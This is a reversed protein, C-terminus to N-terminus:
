SRQRLAATERRVWRRMEVAPAPPAVLWGQAGDCGFERLRDRITTSEVGEAVVVLGLDHALDITSRVIAAQDKTLGLVFSRDIKLEDVPLQRLYSLSSYGTGFDDIALTIGMDHLRALCKASRVPDAMIFNETIELVLAAPDVGRLRICEAVRDPLDPDRLNRPSLNVAVRVGTRADLAAWEALAKDLLMMTLPEILGTQEALDIFESPPLSGLRPHRWRALAEVAMVAGSQLNVIPQYECSFHDREIGDRLETIITLRRHAGHDREASYVAFGLDGRKAVHMAIDAQQLLADGTPGHEPIWAIGFSGGVVFAHGDLVLPQQLDEQVTRVIREAGDGDTQPLLLAFEDGGLRAVTDVERLTGRLRSAVQQLVSDGAYHGLSDNISKFSDLDLVVLALPVRMREATLVAQELRDHLLLRNPLDTLPDHYALHVLREEAHQRSRRVAVERLEREVAPLLRKLQGKMIYDHAGSRMADVAADEGITGSVFIFPM